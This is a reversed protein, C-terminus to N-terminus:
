QLNYSLNKFYNIIDESLDLSMGYSTPLINCYNHLFKIINLHGHKAAIDLSRSDIIQSLFITGNQCFEELIQENESLLRSDKNVVDLSQESSVQPKCSYVFIKLLEIDGYKIVKDIQYRHPLIAHSTGWVLVDLHNNNYANDMGYRSPFIPKNRTNNRILLNQLVRPNNNSYHLVYEGFKIKSPSELPIILNTNFSISAAWILVHICGSEAAEDMGSSEPLLGHTEYIKNLTYIDGNRALDNILIQLINMPPKKM